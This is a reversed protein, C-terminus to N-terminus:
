VTEGLTRCAPWLPTFVAKSAGRDTAFQSEVSIEDFGM